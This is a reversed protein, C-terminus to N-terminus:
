AVGSDFIKNFYDCYIPTMIHETSQLYENYIYDQPSAAKSNNCKRIAKSIEASSIKGNLIDNNEQSNIDFDFNFNDDYETDVNTNKYYEYFNQIDPMKNQKSETNFSNLIKWFDKPRNSHMHRLKRENKSRHKQIFTNMTQKYVKSARNLERRYLDSKHLNYRKRAAHYRRRYKACLPGFWPKSNNKNISFSTDNNPFTSTASDHFLEAIHESVLNIEHKSANPSINKVMNKVDNIKEDRLNEVFENTLKNQWKPPKSTAM